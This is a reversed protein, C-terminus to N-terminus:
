EISNEQIIREIKEISINTMDSVDQISVGNKHMTLVIKIEKREEGKELGQELGDDFGKKRIDEHATLETRVIDWFKDYLELEEQSFGTMEIVDIAKKIETNLFLDNPVSNEGENVETLFRLWLSMMKKDTFNSPKFKGLEVFVFELGEIVQNTNAEEVIKYHHYFEDSSDFSQNILALTYVPELLSYKQKKNLQRVYAKSANFLVRQKFSKTWYMQMEVIFQRGNKDRCRVDVITNKLSLIEPVLESATYEIETIKSEEDFPLLSNLLSICLDKHEGFIKKFILDNKPDLYKM